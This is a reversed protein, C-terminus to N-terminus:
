HRCKLNLRPPGNEANIRPKLKWDLNCMLQTSFIKSFSSFLCNLGSIAILHYKKQIIFSATADFQDTSHMSRRGEHRSLITTFRHLETNVNYTNWSNFVTTFKTLILKNLPFPSIQPLIKRRSFIRETFQWQVSFLTKCPLHSWYNELPNKITTITCRQWGRGWEDM